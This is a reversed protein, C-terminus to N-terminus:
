NERSDAWIRKNENEAPSDLANTGCAQVLPSKSDNSQSDRQRFPGHRNADHEADEPQCDTETRRHAAQQRIMKAPAHYRNKKSIAM